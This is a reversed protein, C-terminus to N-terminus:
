NAVAPCDRIQAGSGARAAEPRRSTSKGDRLEAVRSQTKSTSPISSAPTGGLVGDAGHVRHVADTCERRVCGGGTAAKDGIL